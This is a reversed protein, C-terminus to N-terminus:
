ASEESEASLYQEVLRLMAERQPDQELRRELYDRVTVRFDAKPTVAHGGADAEQGAERWDMVTFRPFATRVAREIADRSDAGSRYHVTIRALARDADPYQVRLDADTLTDDTIMVDYMPTPELPLVTPEGRRGDPGIDVLIVGPQHEREGFDLRDLSGCYRIHTMGRLCQPKHIHGLAVYDPWVPLSGGDLLIDDRETLRFLGGSLDAGSMLLHAALVTRATPDYGNANQPLNQFWAAIKGQVARHEEEPTRCQRREDEELYRSPYPYPLMIFQTAFPDGPAQLKGFWASNFLYMRGPSLTAGIPFGGPAALGMGARVLEVVHDKDHNGTVALITGGRAFFPKFTTRLHTLTGAVQDRSAREYFLDGAILL